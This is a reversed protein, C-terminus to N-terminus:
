REGIKIIQESRMEQYSQYLHSNNDAKEVKASYMSDQDLNM